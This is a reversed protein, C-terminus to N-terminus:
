VVEPFVVAAVPVVLGALQRHSPKHNSPSSSAQMRAVQVMTSFPADVRLGSGHSVTAPPGEELGPAVDQQRQVGVPVAVPVAQAAESSSSPVARFASRWDPLRQTTRPLLRHQLSSGHLSGRTGVSDGSGAPLQPNRRASCGSTATRRLCRSSRCATKATRSFLSLTGRKM